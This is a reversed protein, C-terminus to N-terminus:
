EAEKKDEALFCELESIANRLNYEAAALRSHALARGPMPIGYKDQLLERRNVLCILQHRLRGALTEEPLDFKQGPKIEYFSDCFCWPCVLDTWGQGSHHQAKQEDFGVWGCTRRSCRWLTNQSM